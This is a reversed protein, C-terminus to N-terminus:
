SILFGIIFIMSFQNRSPTHTPDVRKGLLLKRASKLSKASTVDVYKRLLEKVM